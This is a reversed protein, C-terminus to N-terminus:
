RWRGIKSGAPRKAEAFAGFALLAVVALGALLWATVSRTLRGDRAAPATLPTTRTSASSRTPGPAFEAILYGAVRSGGASVTPSATPSPRPATPTASGRAASPTASGGPATTPGARPSDPAPSAPAGGGHHGQATVPGSTPNHASGAGHSPGRPPPSTRPPPPSTSAGSRVTIEVTASEGTSGNTGVVEVYAYYSGATSYRHTTTRASQPGTGSGDGFSWTYSLQETADPDDVTATFSVTQGARVSRPQATVTPRLVTGSTHVTLDFAGESFTQMFDRGNVDSDGRLPRLYGIADDSGIPWLVPELGSQFPFDPSTPDDFDHTQASLLSQYPTRGVIATYTVSSPAIGLQQLLHRISVGQSLPESTVSGGPTSRVLYQTDTVDTWDALDTLTVVTTDPPSGADGVVHVVVCPEGAPCPASAAGAPAATLAAAALTACAIVVWRM